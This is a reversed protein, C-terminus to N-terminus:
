RTVSIAATYTNVGLVTGPDIGTGSRGHVWEERSRNVSSFNLTLAPNPSPYTHLQKSM